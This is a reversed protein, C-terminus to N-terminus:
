RIDKLINEFAERPNLSKTIPRGIVLYDSGNSIANKPTMIRKQDHADEGKPRIGPTICLFSSHTNEKIFAVDNASCVVGNLNAEHTLKALHLVSDKMTKEILQEKQIMLETTSTLQTVAILLSNPAFERFGQVSARLMDSGGIAHVNLMDVGLKGLTRCSKEVTNPIDYLKLDLFIKFDLDKVKKILDNGFTYYSEMGIKLFIASGKLSQLLLDLEEKDQTDIAVIIKDKM